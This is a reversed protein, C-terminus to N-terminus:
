IAPDAKKSTSKFFQPYANRLEKLHRIQYTSAKTEPVPLDEEVLHAATWGLEEASKCNAYSDDVFYCKNPDDIGAERMAKRFKDKAPKCLFPVQAYDCYTLGEFLDDIGLLRVVRKGHNVYANTFLWLRVKDRDIDELLARLETDPKLIDELPLADDVKSNFDLPDMQHHRVLGEIALGYKTYYEHTLRKAEEAPLSLHTIFYQDILDAMLHHIKHSRSYLCNDIDFFLVPKAAPAGNSLPEGM